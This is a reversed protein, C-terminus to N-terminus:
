RNGHTPGSCRSEPGEEVGYEGSHTSPSLTNFFGKAGM